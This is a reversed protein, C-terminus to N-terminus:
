GRKRKVVTLRARMGKAEHGELTCFVVYRGRRRVRVRLTDGEGPEVEPVSALVKGDRNRIALDHGDEGYNHVNLRLVGTPVRTRYLAVRWERESVGVSTPSHAAAPAAAFAALLLLPLVKRM